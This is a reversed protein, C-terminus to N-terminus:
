DNKNEKRKLYSAKWNKPLSLHVEITLKDDERKVEYMKHKYIYNALQDLLARVADDENTVIQETGYYASNPELLM